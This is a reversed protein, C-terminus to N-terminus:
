RLPRSGGTGSVSRRALVFCFASAALGLAALGVVASRDGVGTRALEAPRASETSGAPPNETHIPPDPKEPKVPKVPKIPTPPKNNGLVTFEISDTGTISDLVRCMLSLYYEVSLADDPIRADIRFIGSESAVVPIRFLYDFALGDELHYFTLNVTPTAIGGISCEGSLEVTEGPYARTASSWLESVFVPDEYDDEDEEPLAAEPAGSESGAAGSASESSLDGHLLPRPDASEDTPKVPEFSPSTSEGGVAEGSPPPVAVLLGGTLAVSVFVGFGARSAIRHFLGVVYKKM